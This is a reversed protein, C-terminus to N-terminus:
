LIEIMSENSEILFIKERDSRRLVSEATKRGEESSVAVANCYQAATKIADKLFRNGKTLEAEMRESIFLVKNSVEALALGLVLDPDTTDYICITDIPADGYFRRATLAYDYKLYGFVARFPIKGALYLERLPRGISSFSLEYRSAVLDTSHLMPYAGTKDENVLDEDCGVYIELASERGLRIVDWLRDTDRGAACYDTYMIVKRTDTRPMDKLCLGDERGLFIRCLKEPNDAADQSCMEDYFASDDYQKGANLMRVVNEQSRALDFPLSEIDMNLGHHELYSDLDEIYLIIHGKTVMYDFFVSSYDSILAEAVSLVHYSDILPPFAKIHRYGSFDLGAKIHHHLNVYLIQDDRLQGDMYDLFATEREITEEDSLHDRFTPM